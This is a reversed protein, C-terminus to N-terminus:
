SMPRTFRRAFLQEVKGNLQMSRCLFGTFGIMIFLQFAFVSWLVADSGGEVWWTVGPFVWPIALVVVFLVEFIRRMYHMCRAKWLLPLLVIMDRDTWGDVSKIEEHTQRSTWNVQNEVSVCVEQHATNKLNGGLFGESFKRKLHRSIMFYAVLGIIGLGALVGAFSYWVTPSFYWMWFYAVVISLFFVTLLIHNVVRWQKLIRKLNSRPISRQWGQLSLIEFHTQRTIWDAGDPVMLLNTQGGFSSVGSLSLNMNADNTVSSFPTRM